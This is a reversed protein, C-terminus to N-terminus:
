NIVGAVKLEILEDMSRGLAGLVEDTHEGHEPARTLKPTDQDIQAPAVTTGAVLPDQNDRFPAYSVCYLKAGTALPSPPMGVPAGLWWWTVGIALATLAFLAVAQGLASEDPNRVDRM